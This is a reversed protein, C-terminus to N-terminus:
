AAGRKRSDSLTPCLGEAHQRYVGVVCASCEPQEPESRLPIHGPCIGDPGDKRWSILRCRFDRVQETPGIPEVQVLDSSAKARSWGRARTGGGTRGEATEDGEGRFRAYSCVAVVVSIAFYVFYIRRTGTVKEKTM